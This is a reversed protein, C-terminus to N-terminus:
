IKRSAADPLPEMRADDDEIDFEILMRLAERRVREASQSILDDAVGDDDVEFDDHAKSSM